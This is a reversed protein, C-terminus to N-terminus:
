VSTNTGQHFVMQWKGDILKWISSRLSSVKTGNRPNLMTSRYTILVLNSALERTTFDEVKIQLDEKEERLNKITKKKDLVTGSKTFEIFENALLESVAEPSNRIEKKHLKIELERFYLAGKDDM